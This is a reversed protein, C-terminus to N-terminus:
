IFLPVLKSCRCNTEPALLALICCATCSLQFTQPKNPYYLLTALEWKTWSYSLSFFSQPFLAFLVRSFNQMLAEKIFSVKPQVTNSIFCVFLHEHFVNRCHPSKQLQTFSNALKPSCPWASLFIYLKFQISRCNKSWRLGSVLPATRIGCWANIKWEALSSALWYTLVAVDSKLRAEWEDDM